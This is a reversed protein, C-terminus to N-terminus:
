VAMIDGGKSEERCVYQKRCSPFITGGQIYSRAEEKDGSEPNLAERQAWIISLNQEALEKKMVYNNIRRVMFMMSLLLIILILIYKKLKNKTM